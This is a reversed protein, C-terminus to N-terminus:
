CHDQLNWLFLLFILRDGALLQIRKAAIGKQPLMNVKTFPRPVDLIQRKGWSRKYRIFNVHKLKGMGEDSSEM